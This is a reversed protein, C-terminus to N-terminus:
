LVQVWIECISDDSSPDFRKDYMELCWNGVKWDTSPLYKGYIEDYTQGFKDLGGRHEFVLWKAPPVERYVMGEPVNKDQKVELCAIYDFPAEPGMDSPDMVSVGCSREHNSVNAMPIEKDRSCFDQWLQPIEGKQNKGHYFMGVVGFAERDEIRIEKM